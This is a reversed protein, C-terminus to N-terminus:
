RNSSGKLREIYRHTFEKDCGIQNYRGQDATFAVHDVAYTKLDFRLGDDRILDSFTVMSTQGVGLPPINTVFGESNDTDNIQIRVRTWAVNTLNQISIGEERILVKSPLCNPKSEAAKPEDNAKCGLLPLAVILLWIASRSVRM